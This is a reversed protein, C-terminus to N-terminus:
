LETVALLEENIECRVRIKRNNEREDQYFVPDQDIEASRNLGTEESVRGTLGQKASRESNMIRTTIIDPDAFARPGLSCVSNVGIGGLIEPSDRM